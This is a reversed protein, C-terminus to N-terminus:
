GHLIKVAAPAITILVALIASFLLMEGIRVVKANSGLLYMLLGGILAAFFIFALMTLDDDRISRPEVGVNATLKHM